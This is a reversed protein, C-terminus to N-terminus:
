PEMTPSSSELLSLTSRALHESRAKTGNIQYRSQQLYWPLEALPFQGVEAPPYLRFGVGLRANTQCLLMM